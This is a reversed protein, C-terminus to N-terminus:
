RPDSWLPLEVRFTSGRGPTSEVGILGSHRDVIRRVIALGIGTGPVTHAVPNSSRDFEDFLTVLDDEAIGIGTDTCTFVAHCAGAGSIPGGDTGGAGEPAETTLELAIRGGSPTYKVANGVVNALLRALDDREGQVLV